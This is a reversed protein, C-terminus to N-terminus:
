GTPALAEIVAKTFRIREAELEASLAADPQHDRVAKSADIGHADLVAELIRQRDKVVWLERTLVLLARGLDDLQDPKLMRGTDLTQSMAAAPSLTDPM